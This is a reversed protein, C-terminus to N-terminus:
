GGLSISNGAWPRIKQARNGGTDARKAFTLLNLFRRGRGKLVPCESSIIVSGMRM